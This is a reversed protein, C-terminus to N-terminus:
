CIYNKLNVVVVFSAPPGRVIFSAVVLPGGRHWTVVSPSPNMVPLPGFWWTHKEKEKKTKVLMVKM